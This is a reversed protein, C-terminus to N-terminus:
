ARKGGMAPNALAKRRAKQRMQEALENPNNAQVTVPGTFNTSSDVKTYTNNHVIPVSSGRTNVRKADPGLKNMLTIIFDAGRDNLPIVAEPGREGVGITQPGSFLAGEGYWHPSRGKWKAYANGPNGYSRAIYDLGYKTQLAPDSTKHGGVTGWTSNLFQFMGYASSTPNQANNDFGSEGMLLSYLSDWYRGWGRAASMRQVLAKNGTVNTPAHGPGGPQAPSGVGLQAIRGDAWTNLYDSIMHDHFFRALTPDSRILAEFAYQEELTIGSAAGSSVMQGLTAPSVPKGNQRVEFHLHPGTVNGTAGTKGIVQGETVRQGPKVGFASQHAYWTEIGPGVAIKTLNGYAGGWATSMVKGGLAAHIPTGTPTAYDDGTHYGSAWMSGKKGFPTTVHGGVIPVMPKADKVPAAPAGDGGGSGPAEHGGGVGGGSSRSGKRGDPLFGWQKDIAVKLEGSVTLVDKKIQNWTALMLAAEKGLNGRLQKTAATLVDELSMSLDNAMRTFQDQSRKMQKDFDTVMDNISTNYDKVQRAITRAYDAESRQMTKNYDAAARDMAKGFDEAGQRMAKSYDARGRSLMKSLDQQGRTLATRYDESQQQLQLKYAKMARDRSKNFDEQGRQLSLNYQRNMEEWATNDQDKVLASSDKLRDAVAKNFQQVMQPDAAMDAVLRALQQANNSDTLGLQKIADGSLGMQRAKDLNAAQEAMRRNQDTANALLSGASMTRQVTVREYINMMQKASQEVMLTAQHNFDQEGRIRSTRFDEYSQQQSINFSLAGRQRSLQYDAEGRTRSTQFDELTRKVSLNYAEESRMRSINYDEQNRVRSLHYDAEGRQQQLNYDFQQRSQSRNFDRQGRDRQTQFDQEAQGRSINFERQNIVQQKFFNAGELTQSRIDALAQKREQEGEPGVNAGMIAQFNQGALQYQKGPGGGSIATQFSAFDKAAGQAAAALQYLPDTTDGIAAKLNILEGQIDAASMGMGQLKAVMADVAQLQSNVDGTSNIATQVEALGQVAGGARTAGIRRQTMEPGTLTSADLASLNTAQTALLQSRSMGNVTEGNLIRNVDDRNLGARSLFDDFAKGADGDKSLFDKWTKILDQESGGEMNKALNGVTGKGGLYMQGFFQNQQGVGASTLSGYSQGAGYLLANFDALTQEQFAQVGGSNGARAARNQVEAGLQSYYTKSSDSTTLGLGAQGLPRPNARGAESLYTAFDFNNQGSTADNLIDQVKQTDGGFRKLLDYKIEQIAQPSEKGTMSSRLLNRIGGEDLKGMAPNTYDRAMATGVDSQQVYKAGEATTPTAAKTADQMAKTFDYTATTAAGVATRYSDMLTTQNSGEGVLGQLSQQGKNFSRLASGASVGMIALGLPGGALNMLGSGAARIGSMAATGTARAALVGLGATARALGANFGVFSRTLSAAGSGVGSFMKGLSQGGEAGATGARFTGLAASMGERAAGMQSVGQGLAGGRGSAFARFAGSVTGSELLQQRRTPDFPHHLPDYGTELFNLGAAAVHLPIGAIRSAIGPGGQSGGPLRQRLDNGRNGLFEGASYMASRVPGMRGEDRAAMYKSDSRDRIRDMIGGTFANHTVAYGTALTALPGAFKLLTGGVLGASSAIGALMSALTGLPGNALKAAADAMATMGNVFQTAVPAFNKGLGEGVEKGANSLRVLADSLGGVAAQSGRQLANDPGTDGYAARAQQIQKAIGGTQQTVGTIARMTRMGDLGMRNLVQIANPGLRNLENFVDTIATTKDMKAFQDVTVGILNAYKALDPSGSQTAQMIDTLMKNFANGAAYGDQGAKTFATSVGMLETQTMGAVRGIPAIASSFDLISQAAVGNKQSLETLVNAYKATDRQTTGMQRQLSLLGQTLAGTSEGTAAGLRTFTEALDNVRATGDKLGNLQRVLDAAAQTSVPFERRLQQVSQEMQSFSRNTVAAQAQLNSMQKEFSAYAATVGVIGAATGAGFIQLKTGASKALNDLSRALTDIQSNLGTTEQSAQKLSRNYADVDATLVVNAQREQPAESV